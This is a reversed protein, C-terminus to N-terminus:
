FLEVWEASAIGHKEKLRLLSETRTPVNHKEVAVYLISTIQSNRSQVYGIYASKLDEINHDARFPFSSLVRGVETDLVNLCAREKYIVAPQEYKAGLLMLEYLNAKPFFFLGEEYDQERANNVYRIRARLEIIAFDLNKLNNRLQEHNLRNTDETKEHHWASVVGFNDSLPLQETNSKM